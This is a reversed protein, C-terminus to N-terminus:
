KGFCDSIIVETIQCFKYISSGRLRDVQTIKDAGLCYCREGFLTATNDSRIPSVFYGGWISQLPEIINRQLTGKTNGLIVVLGDQKAVARIRKPILYYDMFTKGSRTAGSKINWRLNAERFYQNQKNTFPM